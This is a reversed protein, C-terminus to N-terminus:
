PWGLDKALARYRDILKSRENPDIERRGALDAAVDLPENHYLLLQEAVPATDMDRRLDDALGPEENFVTGLTERVLAWYRDAHMFIRTPDIEPM